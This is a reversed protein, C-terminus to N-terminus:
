ANSPARNGAIVNRMRVIMASAGSKALIGNSGKALGKAAMVRGRTASMMGFPNTLGLSNRPARLGDGQRWRSVARLTAPRKEAFLARLLHHSTRYMQDGQSSDM